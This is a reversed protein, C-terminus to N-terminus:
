VGFSVELGAAGDMAFPFLLKISTTTWPVPYLAFVWADRVHLTEAERLGDVCTPWCMGYRGPTGMPLPIKRLIM